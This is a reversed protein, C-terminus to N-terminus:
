NVHLVFSLEMCGVVQSLKQGTNIVQRNRRSILVLHGVNVGYFHVVHSVREWSQYKRKKIKKQNMKYVKAKRAGSGKCYKRLIM